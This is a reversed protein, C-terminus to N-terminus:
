KGTREEIILRILQELESAIRDAQTRPIGLFVTEDDYYFGVMQNFASLEGRHIATTEKMAVAARFDPHDRKWRWFTVYSVGLLNAVEDNTFGADTSRKAIGVYEVKYKGSSIRGPIAPVKIAPPAPAKKVKKKPM